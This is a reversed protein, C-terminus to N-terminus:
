LRSKIQIPKEILNRLYINKYTFEHDEKRFIRKNDPIIEKPLPIELKRSKNRFCEIIMIPISKREAKALEHFWNREEETITM